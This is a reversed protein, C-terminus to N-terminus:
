LTYCWVFSQTVLFIWESRGSFQVISYATTNLSRSLKLRAKEKLVRTLFKLRLTLMERMPQLIDWNFVDPFSHEMDVLLRIEQNISITRRVANERRIVVKTALTPRFLMACEATM